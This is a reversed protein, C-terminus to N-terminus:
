WVSNYNYYTPHPAIGVHHSPPPVTINAARWRDVASRTQLHREVWGWEGVMCVSAVVAAARACYKLQWMCLQAHTPPQWPSTPTQSQAAERLLWRHHHYYRQHRQLFLLLFHQQQKQQEQPQGQRWLLQRRGWGLRLPQLLRAWSTSAAPHARQRRPPRTQEERQGQRHRPATGGVVWQRRWWCALGQRRGM